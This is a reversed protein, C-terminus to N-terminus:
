KQFVRQNYIALAHLAVSVAETQYDTMTVANATQPVQSVKTALAQIARTINPNTLENEPLSLVMFRLIHGSAYLTAYHDSDVGRKVFFESHWLGQENQISLVFDHYTVVQDRALKMTPTFRAGENNYLEVATALGLLWDTAESTSQDVPRNLESAVLREISWSEGTDSKWQDRSETYFSLGVLTLAHNYGNRCLARESAVLDAISYSKGGVRIEYNDRINSMALLALFQSPKNQYGHGIRAYIRKGDTKLLQKGGCNYNWALSGISYIYSGKQTEGRKPVETSPQFVMADVGYAQAMVMVDCPSNSALTIGRKANQALVNTVQDKLSVLYDNLPTSAMSMTNSKAAVTTGNNASAARQTTPAAPVSSTQVDTRALSYQVLEVNEARKGAVDRLRPATVSVVNSKPLEKNVNGVVGGAINDRSNNAPADPTIEGFDAERNLSHKTNNLLADIDEPATTDDFREENSVANTQPEASLPLNWISVSATLTLVIGAFVFRLTKNNM